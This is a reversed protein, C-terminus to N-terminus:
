SDFNEANYALWVELADRLAADLSMEADPPFDGSTVETFERAWVQGVQDLAEDTARDIREATTM